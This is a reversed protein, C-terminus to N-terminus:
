LSVFFATKSGFAPKSYLPNAAGHPATLIFFSFLFPM